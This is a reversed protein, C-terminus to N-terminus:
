VELKGKLVKVVTALEKSEEEARTRDRTMREFELRLDLAPNALFRQPLDKLATLEANLQSAHKEAAVKDTHLAQLNAQNSLNTPTRPLSPPLSPLPLPPLSLPSPSLHPLSPLSLPPLSYCNRLIRRVQSDQMQTSLQRLSAELKNKEITWAKEKAAYMEGARTEVEERELERRKYDELKIRMEKMEAVLSGEDEKSAERLAVLEAHAAALNSKAEQTEHECASARTEAISSRTREAALETNTRDLQARLSTAEQATM